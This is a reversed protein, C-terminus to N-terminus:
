PSATEIQHFMPDRSPYISPDLGAVLLLGPLFCLLRAGSWVHPGEAWWNKAVEPAHEATNRMSPLTHKIVSAGFPGVQIILQRLLDM